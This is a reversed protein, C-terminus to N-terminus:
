ALKLQFYSTRKTASANTQSHVANDGILSRVRAPTNWLPRMEQAIAAEMESTIGWGESAWRWATVNACGGRM